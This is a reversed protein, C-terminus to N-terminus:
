NKRRWNPATQPVLQDGLADVDHRHFFWARAHEFGFAVPHHGIVLDFARQRQNMHTQQVIAALKIFLRHDLHHADAVIVADFDALRRHDGVRQGIQRHHHLRARDEQAQRAVRRDGLGEPIEQQSGTLRSQQHVFDQEVMQLMLGLVFAGPQM